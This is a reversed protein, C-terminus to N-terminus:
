SASRKPRMTMLISMVITNICVSKGSGTAGAILMHPMKTLDSFVPEGSVGKGLLIPVQLKRSKQLYNLLMEKFGVELPHLAPVEVGVAAKGPIPAVIRISKAQMNLAIDNELAKIKQVKVGISPQVEFSTITPGSHIEGVKADIGFSKLTEELVGAQRWLDKKMQPQDVKQEPTSLLDPSPLQYSGDFKVPLFAPAPPKEKVPRPKREVKLIEVIKKASKELFPKEEPPLSIKELPKPAAEKRRTPISRLRWPRPARKRWPM